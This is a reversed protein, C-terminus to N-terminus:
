INIYHCPEKTMQIERIYFQTLKLPYKSALWYVVPIYNVRDGDIM